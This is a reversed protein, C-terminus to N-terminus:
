RQAGMRRAGKEPPQPAPDPTGPEVPRTEGFKAAMQVLYGRLTTEHGFVFKSLARFVVSHIEGNETVTLLTGDGDPDLRWTWTGGFAGGPVAIRGIMRREPVLEEIQVEMSGFGSEERWRPLGDVPELLEVSRLDKRWSPLAAVDTLAAFVVAAPQRLRVCCSAQHTVPLLAGVVLLLLLLALLSLAVVWYWKM